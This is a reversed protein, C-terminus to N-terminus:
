CTQRVGEPNRECQEYCKGGRYECMPILSKALACDTHSVAAKIHIMTQRTIAHSKLCLRRHAMNMLSEANCLMMHNVMDTREASLDDRRSSVFHEVGVKHRVFHVSVFAPIRYMRIVFMQTRITSHGLEYIRGLDSKM